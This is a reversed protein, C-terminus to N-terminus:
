FRTFYTSDLIVSQKCQLYLGPLQATFRLASQDSSLAAFDISRGELRSDTGLGKGGVWVWEGEEGPTIRPHRAVMM